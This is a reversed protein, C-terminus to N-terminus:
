TVILSAVAQLRAFFLAFIPILIVVLSAFALSPCFHLALALSAAAFTTVSQVTPSVNLHQLRKRTEFVETVSM